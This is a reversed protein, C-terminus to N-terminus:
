SMLKIDKLLFLILLFLHLSPYRHAYRFLNKQSSCFPFCFEAVFHRAVFHATVSELIPTYNMQILWFFNFEPDLVTCVFYIPDSFPDDKYVIQQSLRKVISSFRENTAQELQLCMKKLFSINSKINKLHDIIHVVSPVVLSATVVSESQIRSNIEAFPELM